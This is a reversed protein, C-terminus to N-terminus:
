GRAPASACSRSRRRGLDRRERRLRRTPISPASSPAPRPPSPRRSPRRATGRRGGPRRASPRSRPRGARRSRPRASPRSRPRAGRRSRAGGPPRGGGRRPLAPEARGGRRRDGGRHGQVLPDRRRQRPDRLDGPRPRLQHGRARHDPDAPAPGRARRDGRDQPGGRLGRRAPAAHQARRRPQVRAQRAGERGRHARAHAAAGAHRERDLGHARAPAQHAQLRDPLQHAARGALAPPRVAHGRGRRGRRDHRAGAEQHGRVARHRRPRRGRLRVGAGAGAAEGHAPPRHHPHRQARRLHVPADEPELPADPPRLARRGGAARQTNGSGVTAGKTRTDISGAPSARVRTQHGPLAAGARRPHNSTRALM